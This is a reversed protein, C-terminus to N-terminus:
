ARVDSNRLNALFMRVRHTGAAARDISPKEVFHYTLSCIVAVLASCAAIVGWHMIPSWTTARTFGAVFRFVFFLIMGHLLYISYSIQGLLCVARSTLIGFLNNGSAIAIFVVTICLYPVPEFVTPYYFLVITLLLVLLPSLWSQSCFTRVADNRVLFAAVIGGAFPSIRRWMGLPYYQYLIFTFLVLFVGTIALIATPTKIRFFIAGNLALTFYFMWEFALSWVVGAVLLKTGYILNVDAEIFFLWQIFEWALNGLPEHLVFRSVFGILVFVSGIAVLYLPM